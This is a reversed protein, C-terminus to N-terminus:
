RTHIRTLVPDDRSLPPIDCTTETRERRRRWGVGSLPAAGSRGVTRADVGGSGGRSWGREQTTFGREERGAEAGGGGRRPSGESRRVRRQEAGGRCPSGESRRVRRQEAGEGACRVRAGGPGGRSGVTFEANRKARDHSRSGGLPTLLEMKRVLGRVEHDVM